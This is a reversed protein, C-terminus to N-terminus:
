SHFQLEHEQTQEAVTVTPADQLLGIPPTYM